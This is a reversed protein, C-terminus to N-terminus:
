ATRSQEDQQTSKLKKIEDKLMQIVERQMEIMELRESAIKMWLVAKEKWEDSNVSAKSIQENERLMEGEGTLLWTSNLNHYYNLIKELVKGSLDRGSKRSKGIVGVSLGLQETVKNDNLGSFIMYKDFRDIKRMFFYQFLEYFYKCIYLIVEIKTDYDHHYDLKDSILFPLYLFISLFYLALAVSKLLNRREM